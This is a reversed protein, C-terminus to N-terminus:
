PLNGEPHSATTPASTASLPARVTRLQSLLHTHNLLERQGGVILRLTV